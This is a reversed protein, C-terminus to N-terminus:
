KLGVFDGVFINDLKLNKILVLLDGVFIDWFESVSNKVSSPGVKDGKVAGAIPRVNMNIKFVEHIGVNM